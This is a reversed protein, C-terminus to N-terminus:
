RGRTELIKERYRSARDKDRKESGTLTKIKSKTLGYSSKTDQLRKFELIAARMGVRDRVKKAENYMDKLHRTRNAFHKQVFYLQQTAESTVADTQSKFGLAKVILEGYGYEEPTLLQDGNRRVRGYMGTNVTKLLHKLQGPLSTELAKNYDGQAFLSLGEALQLGLGMSPGALGLAIEAALEDGNKSTDAYPLASVVDGFGLQKTVNAGGLTPMGNVFVDAADEGFLETFFKRADREANARDDEDLQNMVTAYVSGALAAGPVGMMGTVAFTHGFLYLLGMRAEHVEEKSFESKANIARGFQEGLLSLQILQYKRFQTMAKPLMRFTLPANTNSYDGHTRNIVQAAYELAKAKDGTKALELDYAAISTVTRNFVEVNRAASHMSSELWRLKPSVHQEWTNKKRGPDTLSKSLSGFEMNLGIDLLGRAEIERLLVKHEESVAMKEVDIVGKLWPNKADKGRANILDRYKWSLETTKAYAAVGHRGAMYPNSVMFTQLGNMVYYHFSSTLYWVSAGRMGYNQVTEMVGEENMKLGGEHRKIVTNYAQRMDAAKKPSSKQTEDIANKMDVFAQSVDDNTKIAANFRAESQSKEFFSRMMNRSAGEIGKRRLDHKRASQEALQSIYLSQVAQTVATRQDKTLDGKLADAIIKELKQVGDWNASQIDGRMDLKAGWAPSADAGMAGAKEQADEMAKSEVDHMAVYYHNPDMEYERVLAEAESREPGPENYEALLAKAEMLERSKVTAVYKGFRSLPAYPGNITGLMKQSIKQQDFVKKKRAQQESKSLKAFEADTLEGQALKNIAEFMTRRQIMGRNFVEKIIEQQEPTLADFEAKLKPDIVAGSLDENAAAELETPDFGWMGAVPEGKANVGRKTTSEYLFNNVQDQLKETKLENFKDMVKDIKRHEESTIRDRNREAKFYDTVAKGYPGFLKEFRTELDRGFTNWNLIGKGWRRADYARGDKTDLLSRMYSVAARSDVPVDQALRYAVPGLKNKVDSDPKPDVPKGKGEVYRAGARVVADIDAMSVARMMGMKRLWSRAKTILKQVFTPTFDYNVGQSWQAFAEQIAVNETQDYVEDSSYHPDVGQRLFEAKVLDRFEENGRMAEKGMEIIDADYVRRLGFHGIAEHIVTARVQAADTHTNTFVLIRPGKIGPIDGDEHFRGFPLKSAGETLNERALKVEPDMVNEIPINTDILLIRPLRPWWKILPEIAKEAQIETMGTRVGGEGVPAPRQNYMDPARRGFETEAYSTGQSAANLRSPGIKSGTDVEGETGQDPQGLEAEAEQRPTTAAETKSSVKGGTEQPLTAAEIRETLKQMAEAVSQMAKVAESERTEPANEVERAVKNAVAAVQGEPSVTPKTESKAVEAARRASVNADNNPIVFDAMTAAAEFNGAAVTQRLRKMDQLPTASKMAAKAGREVIQQVEKPQTRVAKAARKWERSFDPAVDALPLQMQQKSNRREAIRAKAETTKDIREEQAKAAAAEREMRKKRTKGVPAVEREKFLEQQVPETVKPVPTSAQQKRLVAKAAKRNPKENKPEPVPGYESENGTNTKTTQDLIREEERKQALAEKEIAARREAEYAEVPDNKALEENVTIKYPAIRGKADRPLAMESGAQEPDVPKEPPLRVDAPGKRNRDLAAAAQQNVDYQPNHANQVPGQQRPDVPPVKAPAPEATMTNYAQSFKATLDRIGDLVLEREVVNDAKLKGKKGADQRATDLKVQESMLYMNLQAAAAEDPNNNMVTLAKNLVKDAWTKTAKTYGPGVLNLHEKAGQETVGLTEPTSGFVPYFEPRTNAETPEEQTTIKPPPSPLKEPLQTDSSKAKLESEAEKLKSDRIEANSEAGQQVSHQPQDNTRFKGIAGAGAGVKGGVIAGTASAMGIERLKEPTMLDYEQGYKDVRGPGAVAAQEATAQIGEAVGEEVFGRAGERAVGGKTGKTALRAATGGLGLREAGASVVGSFSAAGLDYNSSGLTQRQRQIANGTYAGILASTAATATVPGGVASVAGAAVYPASTALTHATLGILDFPNKVDELSKTFGSEDAAADAFIQQREGWQIWSEDGTAAGYASGLAGIASVGGSELSNTLDWENTDAAEHEEAEAIARLRNTIYDDM